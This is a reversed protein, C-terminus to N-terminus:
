SGSALLEPSPRPLERTALARLEAGGGKGKAVHRAAERFSVLWFWFFAPGAPPYAADTPFLGMAWIGQLLILRPLLM